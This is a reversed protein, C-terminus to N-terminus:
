DFLAWFDDSVMMRTTISPVISSKLSVKGLLYHITSLLELNGCFKMWVPLCDLSFCRRMELKSVLVNLCVALIEKQGSGARPAQAELGTPNTQFLSRARCRHSILRYPQSLSSSFSQPIGLFRYIPQLTKPNQSLFSRRFAALCKKHQHGVSLLRFNLHKLSQQQGVGFFILFLLTDCGREEMLPLLHISYGIPSRIILNVLGFWTFRCSCCICYSHM